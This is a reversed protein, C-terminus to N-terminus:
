RPADPYKEPSTRGWNGNFDADAHVELGLNSKPDICCGKDRTGKLCRILWRISETHPNKPRSGPANIPPM